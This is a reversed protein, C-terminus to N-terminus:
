RSKRSQSEFLDMMYALGAQRDREMSAVLKAMSAVKEELKAITAKNANVEARLEALTDTVSNSPALSKESTDEPEDFQPADNPQDEHLDDDDSTNANIQLSRSSTESKSDETLPGKRGKEQMRRYSASGTVKDSPKFYAGLESRPKTNPRSKGKDLGSASLVTIDRDQSSTSRHDLAAATEPTASLNVASIKRKKLALVTRNKGSSLVTLRQRIADNATLGAVRVTNDTCTIVSNRTTTTPIGLAELDRRVQYALVEPTQSAHLAEPYYTIEFPKFVRPETM